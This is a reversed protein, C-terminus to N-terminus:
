RVGLLKHMQPIIRVDDLVIEALRQLELARAASVSKSFKKTPTVPQLVLPIKANTDDIVTVARRIEEDQTAATIVVKVFVEKRQAIRLFDGHRSWYSKGKLASPLKMDMAIVDISDLVGELAGPLTGNTELYIKFHRKRLRPLFARLFDAHLLPEGGTISVTHIGTISDTAGIADLLEYVGYRRGGKKVTDCYACNLNCAAFRIFLQLQGVYIGEGQVSPFLEIIRAENM